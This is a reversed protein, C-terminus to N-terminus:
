SYTLYLLEKQIKNKPFCYYQSVALAYNNLIKGYKENLEKSEENTKYDIISINSIEKKSSDIYTIVLRDIIVEFVKGSDEYVFKKELFIDEKSSDFKLASKVKDLELYKKYEILANEVEERGLSLEEGYKSLVFQVLDDDSKTLPLSITQEFFAHIISGYRAQMIKNLSFINDEEADKKVEKLSLTHNLLQVNKKSIKKLKIENNLSALVLKDGFTILEMEESEPLSIAEKILNEYSLRSNLNNFYLFLGSKARTVAVYFLNLAEEFEQEESRLALKEIDKNLNKLSKKQKLYVKDYLNGAISSRFYLAKDSSLLNFSIEPLMVYDFELGKSKHVTMLRVNVKKSDEIKLSEVELIFSSLSLGGKQYDLSLKYILELSQTNNTLTNENIFEILNLLLSSLGADGLIFRLEDVRKTYDELDFGLYKSFVSQELIFKLFTDNPNDIYKLLNIILNIIPKDTLSNNGEISLKLNPALKEVISKFLNIESNKRFLVAISASPNNKSLNVLHRAALFYHEDEFHESLREHDKGEFSNANFFSVNGENSNATTHTEFQNILKKPLHVSFKENIESEKKSLNKFFENVFSVVSKSCRYTKTKSVLKVGKYNTELSDFIESVAGRWGYISQKVDGVCYFCREKNEHGLVEDIFPKLIQWEILSTDQFEDLLIHRIKSDLRYFIDQLQNSSINKVIKFKIDNFDYKGSNDASLSLEADLFKLIVQLAKLRKGENILHNTKSIAIVRDLLASWIEDIKAKGFTDSGERYKEVLGLDFIKEYNKDNLFNILKQKAKTFYSNLKGAKTKPVETESLEALLNKLDLPADDVGDFAEWAKEISSRYIWHLDVLKSKLLNIVSSKLPNKESLFILENLLKKDEMKCLEYLALKFVEERDGSSAVDFGFTFDLESSFVKAINIFFSDLTLVLFQDQKKLIDSLLELREKKSLKDLNCLKLIEKDVEGDVSDLLRKIIRSRIESAAKRTFTTALINKPEVGQTLLSIFKSTLETTKGAGASARVVEQFAKM